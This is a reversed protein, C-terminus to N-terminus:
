TMYVAYLYLAISATNCIAFASFQFNKEGTCLDLVQRNLSYSTLRSGSVGGEEQSVLTLLSNSCGMYGRKSKIDKLM